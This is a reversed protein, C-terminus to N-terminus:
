LQLLIQVRLLSPGATKNNPEKFIGRSSEVGPSTLPMMPCFSAPSFGFIWPNYVTMILDLMEVRIRSRHIWTAALM